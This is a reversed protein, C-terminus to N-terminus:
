TSTFYKAPGGPFGKQVVLHFFKLGLLLEVILEGAPTLLGRRALGHEEELWAYM